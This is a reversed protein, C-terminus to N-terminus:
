GYGHPDATLAKLRGGSLGIVRDAISSVEPDHTAVLLTLGRALRLRKLLAVIAAASSSDLNGTPEDAILLRPAGVLARAIGVRQREGGSLRSPPHKLRSGLGVEHLLHQSELRLRDIPRWPLKSLIVNDLATFGPVLHPDQFVIGISQARFATLRAESMEELKSGFITISGSTPRDLGGILNLLTTKGSGSPGMLAVAEGADVDLDVDDLAAVEGGSWRFKRTVGRLRIAGTPLQSKFETM